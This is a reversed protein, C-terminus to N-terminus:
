RSDRRIFRVGFFISLILFIAAAILFGVNSYYREQEEEQYTVELGLDSDITTSSQTSFTIEGTIPHGDASVARYSLLYEGAPYQGSIASATLVERLIKVESLPYNKGAADELSLTNITEGEISILEENFTLSFSEPIKELSAGAVPDSSILDSHAQASPFVSFISLLLVGATVIAKNLLNLTREERSEAQGCV